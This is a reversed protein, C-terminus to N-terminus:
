FELALSLRQANILRGFDQYSYDIKMLVARNIKYNLGAGLTLGEESDLM